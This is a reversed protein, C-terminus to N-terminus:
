FCCCQCCLCGGGREGRRGRICVCPCVRWPLLLAGRPLRHHVVLGLREVGEEDDVPFPDLPFPPTEDPCCTQRVQRKPGDTIVVVLPQGTDKVKYTSPGAFFPFFSCLLTAATAGAAAVLPLIAAGFRRLVLARTQKHPLKCCSTPRRAALSQDFHPLRTTTKLRRGNRNQKPPVPCRSPDFTTLTVCAVCVCVCLPIPKETGDRKQQLKGHNQERKKTAFASCM